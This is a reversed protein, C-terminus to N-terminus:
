VSVIREEYENRLSEVEDSFIYFTGNRILEARRNWEDTDLSGNLHLTLSTNLNILNRLPILLDSETDQVSFEILNEDRYVKQFSIQCYPCHRRIEWWGFICEYCYFHQCNEPRSPDVCNDNRCIPCLESPM